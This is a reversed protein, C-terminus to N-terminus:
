RKRHRRHIVDLTRSAFDDSLGFASKVRSYLNVAQKDAWILVAKQFGDGPRVQYNTSRSVIRGGPETTYYYLALSKRMM